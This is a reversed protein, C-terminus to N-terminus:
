AYQVQPEEDEAIISAGVLVTQLGLFAVTDIQLSGDVDELEQICCLKTEKLCQLDQYVQFLGEAMHDNM